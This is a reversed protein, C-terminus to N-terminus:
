RGDEPMLKPWQYKDKWVSEYDSLIKQIKQKNQEEWSKLSAMDPELKKLTSEYENVKDWFESGKNVSVFAVRGTWAGMYIRTIIYYTKGAELEAELFAKNEATAIFLHKGPNAFYDFQSKAVSHGIVKEGDLMNFNPGRSPRMFRVLAKDGTPSMLTETRKMYPSSGACSAIFVLMCLLCWLRFKSLM